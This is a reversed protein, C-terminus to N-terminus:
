RVIHFPPEFSIATVAKELGSTNSNNASTVTRSRGPSKERLVGGRPTPYATFQFLPSPVLSKM